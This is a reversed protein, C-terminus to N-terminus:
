AGGGEAVRLVHPWDAPVAQYLTRSDGLSTVGEVRTARGSVDQRVFAGFADGPRLWTLAGATRAPVWEREGDQWEVYVAGDERVTRITGEAYAPRARDVCLRQYDIADVICMWASHEDESLAQREAKGQLLLFHRVVAADLRDLGLVPVRLGWGRIEVERGHRLLELPKRLRLSIGDEICFLMQGFECREGAVFSSSDASEYHGYAPRLDGALHAGSPGRAVPMDGISIM